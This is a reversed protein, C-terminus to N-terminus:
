KAQRMSGGRRQDWSVSVDHTDMDPAFEAEVKWLRHRHDYREVYVERTEGIEVTWIMQHRLGRDRHFAITVTKSVPAAAENCRRATEGEASIRNNTIGAREIRDVQVRQLVLDLVQRRFGQQEQKPAAVTLGIAKRILSPAKESTRREAPRAHLGDAVEHVVVDGEAVLMGAGGSGRGFCVYLAVANTAVVCM